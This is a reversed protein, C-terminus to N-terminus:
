SSTVYVFDLRDSAALQFLAITGNWYFLDGNAVATLSRATTGGDNSFYGSLTKVGDGVQVDQGNVRAGVYGGAATPTTPVVAVATVCALNGDATTVSAVMNKNARVETGGSTGPPGAPGPPGPPGPPGSGGFISWPTPM